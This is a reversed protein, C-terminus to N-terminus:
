ILLPPPIGPPLLDLCRLCCPRDSGEWSLVLAQRLRESVVPYITRSVIRPLVELIHIREGVDQVETAAIFFPFSLRYDLAPDTDEARGCGSSAGLCLTYIDTLIAQCLQRTEEGRRGYGYRLRHIVLLTAARFVRAQTNIARIEDPTSAFAFSKPARPDWKLVTAEIGDLERPLTARAAAAHGQCRGGSTRLECLLRCLDFLPALLEACVGIYKDVDTRADMGVEFRCVPVQGLVLCNIVDMWVLPMLWADVEPVRGTRHIWVKGRRTNNYGREVLGLTFRCVEHAWRGSDLLDFTVLGLGLTLALVVQGSDLRQRGGDGEVVESEM